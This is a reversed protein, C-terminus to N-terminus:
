KNVHGINLSPFVISFQQIYVISPISRLILTYYINMEVLYEYLYLVDFPLNIKLLLQNNSQFFSHIAEYITILFTILLISLNLM